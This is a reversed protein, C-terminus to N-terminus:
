MVRKILKRMIAILYHELINELGLENKKSIGELSNSTCEKSSM